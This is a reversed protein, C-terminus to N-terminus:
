GPRAEPRGKLYEAVQAAAASSHEVCANIGVGKYAQGTIFLGPHAALNAYIRELRAQHGVAYQPIAQPWRAQEVFVPEATVGLSIRLDERVGALAAEDSLNVFDPDFVGGCIVRLYVFGPKAQEPFLASTYLCGLLKVPEGRPTIFGLGNVNAPTDARRYALALVRVSAHRIGLLDAALAPNLTRLLDAAVAAPAAVLVADAELPAGGDIHVRYTGGSREIRTVNVGTRVSAGLKESLAGTLAGIGGPFSTPRSGTPSGTSKRRGRLTALMAKLVGGYTQEMLRMRPFLSNLSTQRADGSTIGIVMPVIFARALGPGFRRAAFDYVSEDQGEKAPPVALELLLRLKEPWTLLRTALLSAPGSPLAQLRGRVFLFRDNAAAARLQDQLGLDRALQLTSAGSALFSGPGHDFVFGDRTHSRAQGGAQEGRELLTVQVGQQQLRYAATLGSVGGGIVIVSM